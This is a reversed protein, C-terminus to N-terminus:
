KEKITKAYPLNNSKAWEIADFCPCAKLFENTEIIGNHNIDPSLDRHGLVEAKPYTKVLLHILHNLSLFQHSTYNNSPVGTTNDLGGELCIHLTNDNHGKVGAGVCDDMLRGKHMVGSTDIFYHYGIDGFGREVHWQRLMDVTVHNIPRTASCHIVFYDTSKRIPFEQM